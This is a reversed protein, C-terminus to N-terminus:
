HVKAAAKALGEKALAELKPAPSHTLYWRLESIAAAPKDEADLLVLGRYLHAPGYSPDAREAQDFLGMAQPTFGAEAYIWGESTLAIPQDPYSRLVKGYIDLAAAPDTTTLSQAQQLEATLGSAGGTITDGPLFPRSSRDLAFLAGAVLVLAVGGVLTARQYRRRSPKPSPRLGGAPVEGQRGPPGVAPGPDFLTGQAGLELEPELQAGLEPEPEPEGGAPVAAAPVAAAPVAAAPVELAASTRRWRTLGFGLGAAALGVVLAPVVWVLLSIGSGPPKELISPGYDALLTSRIQVQSRGESLWRRILGRIEVSEPAVSTAVSEGQCVPCFYEGAVQMTRQYLTPPSARGGSFAGAGAALSLGAVLAIVAWLLALERHGPGPPAESAEADPGFLEEIPDV